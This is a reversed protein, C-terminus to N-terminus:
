PAPSPAAPQFCLVVYLGMLLFVAGAGYLLRLALAHGRRPALYDDLLIRVGNLGHIMALLLLLGDYARWFWGVAYRGAVFNYDITDVTNILHMIALHGLALLLLALGSFRMFLWSWLELGGSPKPSAYSLSRSM